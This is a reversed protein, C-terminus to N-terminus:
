MTAMDAAVNGIIIYMSLWMCWVNYVNASERVYFFFSLFFYEWFYKEIDHREYMCILIYDNLQLVLFKEFFNLKHYRVMKFNIISRTIM